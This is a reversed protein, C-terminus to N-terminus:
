DRPREPVFVREDGKRHKDPTVRVTIAKGDRLRQFSATGESANLAEVADPYQKIPRGDIALLVDDPKIGAKDAPGHPEM